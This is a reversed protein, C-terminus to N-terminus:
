TPLKDFGGLVWHAAHTITGTSSSTFTVQARIFERAGSLDVAYEYVGNLTGGGAGAADIQTASLSVLTAVGTGGSDTADQVTIAVSLTENAGAVFTYPVLLAASMALGAPAGRNRSAYASAVASGKTTSTIYGFAPALYAAINRFLSLM